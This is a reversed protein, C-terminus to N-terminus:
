AANVKEEAAGLAAIKDALEVARATEWKHVTRAVSAALDRAPLDLLDAKSRVAHVEALGQAVARADGSSGSSALVFGVAPELFERLVDVEGAYWEDAWAQFGAAGKKSARVAARSERALYRSAVDLLLARQAAAVRGPESARAAPEQDPVPEEVAVPAPAMPVPVPEKPKPKPLNEQQAIREADLVGMDFYARQVESRTKSDAKLIKEFLHEVYYTSRQASGILKRNAEQEIRTTWPLLTDTMYDLQSAEANGGPREGMKHKLKYPPLNLWRAVEEIQLERTERFQAEEPAVSTPKSVKMGEELIWPAHARDPGGATEMLSKRLNEQAKQGLTGPHELAVGIHAGNGFFAAGFHEAAMGLGLSQAALVVVSQGKLGDFGLGSLHFGDEYELRTKGDILYYPRSQKVGRVAISECCFQVRDPTILWMAIPRMANDWEIEAFGNGWALAHATITEWFVHSTTYPNPQDHILKYTPHNTARERDGDGAKRFLFRDILGISGGIMTIGNRFASLRHATHQNVTVGALTPAGLMGLTDFTQRDLQRRAPPTAWRHQDLGLSIM